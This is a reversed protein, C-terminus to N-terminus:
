QGLCDGVDAYDQEQSSANGRDALSPVVDGAPPLHADEGGDGREEEQDADDHALDTLGRDLPQGPHRPENRHDADSPGDLERRIM